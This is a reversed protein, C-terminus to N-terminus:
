LKRPPTSKEFIILRLREHNWPELGFPADCASRHVRFRHVCWILWHFSSLKWLTWNNILHSTPSNKQGSQQFLYRRIKMTSLRPYINLLIRIMKAIAPECKVTQMITMGSVILRAMAFTSAPWIAVWHTLDRIQVVRTNNKGIIERENYELCHNGPSQIYMGMTVFLINHAIAM